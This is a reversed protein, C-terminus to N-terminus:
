LTHMKTEVYNQLQKLCHKAVAEKEPLNVILTKNCVGVTGRYSLVDIVDGKYEKFMKQVVDHLERQSLSQTVSSVHIKDKHGVGGVTFILQKANSGRTWDLMIQLLQPSNKNAVKNSCDTSCSFLQQVMSAIASSKPKASDTLTIIGVSVPMNSPNNKNRNKHSEGINAKNSELISSLLSPDIEGCPLVDVVTGELLYSKVKSAKPIHLIAQARQLSFEPDRRLKAVVTGNMNKEFNVFEYAAQIPNLRVDEGLVARFAEHKVASSSIMQKLVPQMFLHFAVITNCPNGSLGFVVKDKGSKQDKLLAFSVPQEPKGKGFLVTGTSRWYYKYDKIARSISGVLLMMDCNNINMTIKKSLLDPKDEIFERIVIQCGCDKIMAEIVPGNRDRKCELNNHNTDWSVEDSSCLVVIRPKQYVEVETIGATLMLGFEVAGIYKNKEFLLSDKKLDSGMHRINKGKVLDDTRNLTIVNGTKVAHDVPIICNFAGPIPSGSEVYITKRSSSSISIMGPDSGPRIMGVYEYSKNKETENVAWGNIKATNYPPSNLQVYIDKALYHNLTKDVRVTVVEMQFNSLLVNALAEPLPIVKDCKESATKKHKNDNENSEPDSYTAQLFNTGEIDKLAYMDSTDNDNCNINNSWPSNSSCDSPYRVTSPSSESSFIRNDAEQVNLDSPYLIKSVDKNRRSKNQAVKIVRTNKSRKREVPKNNHNSSRTQKYKSKSLPVIVQASTYSKHDSLKQKQIQMQLNEDKEQQIKPDNPCESAIHGTENCTFCVADFGLKRRSCDAAMHGLIGCHYCQKGPFENKQRPRDTKDVPKNETVYNDRVVFSDSRNRPYVYTSPIRPSIRATEPIRMPALRPVTFSRNNSEFGALRDSIDLTSVEFDMFELVPSDKPKLPLKNWDIDISKSKSVFEKADPNLKTFTKSEKRESRKIHVQDDYQDSARIKSIKEVDAKPTVLGTTSKVEFPQNQLELNEGQGNKVEEYKSKQIHPRGKLEARIVITDKSFHYSEM